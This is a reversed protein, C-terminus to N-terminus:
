KAEKGAILKKITNIITIFDEKHKNYFTVDIPEGYYDLKNRLYSMQLMLYAEGEYQPYNQYFYTILCQHNKSKLGRKLLLAVLLEKTAEYYNEVIFSVNNEDAIMSQIFAFRKDVLSLISKIKENDVEVRRIHENECENWGMFELKKM